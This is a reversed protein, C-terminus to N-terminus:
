QLGDCAPEFHENALKIYLGMETPRPLVGVLTAPHIGSWSSHNETWGDIHGPHCQFLEVRTNFFFGTFFIIPTDAYERRNESHRQLYYTVRDAPTRGVRNRRLLRRDKKSTEEENSIPRDLYGPQQEKRELVDRNQSMFALIADKIPEWNGEDGTVIYSIARYFCTGDGRVTSAVRPRINLGIEIRETVSSSAKVFPWAFLECIYRQWDENVPYYIITRTMEVAPMDFEMNSSGAELDIVQVNTTKVTAADTAKKTRTTRSRRTKLVPKEESEMAPVKPVKGAIGSTKDDKKQSKISSKLIKQAKRM